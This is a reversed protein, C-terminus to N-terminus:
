WKEILKNENSSRDNMWTFFFPFTNYQEEHNNKLINTNVTM